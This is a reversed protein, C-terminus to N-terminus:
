EEKSGMVVEKLLRGPGLDTKVILPGLILKKMVPNHIPEPSIHREYLPMHFDQVLQHWLGMDMSGKHQMCISSSHIQVAKSGYSAAVTPLGECIRPDVRYDDEQLLAMSLIYLPPLPKGCLTTSHVGTTHFNSVTCQEGSCPFSPNIYWGATAGGKSGVTLFEHHTEDLTLFWNVNDKHILGMKSKVADLLIFCCFVPVITLYLLLLAFLVLCSVYLGRSRHEWGLSCLFNRQM